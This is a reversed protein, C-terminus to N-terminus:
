IKKFQCINAGELHIGIQRCIPIGIKMMYKGVISGKLKRDTMISSMELIWPKALIHVFSSFVSSKKMLKVIYQAWSQYGLLAYYDHRKIDLGFTNDLYYLEHSLRNQNYLETCILCDGGEADAAEGAEIAQIADNVTNYEQAFATTTRSEPHSEDFQAAQENLGDMASRTGAIGGFGSITENIADVQAKGKASYSTTAVGFFTGKGKIGRDDVGNRKAGHEAQNQPSMSQVQSVTGMASVNGFADVHQGKANFGGMGKGGDGAGDKAYTGNKNMSFQSLGPNKGRGNVQGNPGYSFKDVSYDKSTIDVGFAAAQLGRAQYVSISRSPNKADYAVSINRGFPSAISHVSINGINFSGRMGNAAQHAAMSPQKSHNAFASHAAMALGVGPVAAGLLGKGITSLSPKSITGPATLGVAEYSASIKDADTSTTVNGLADVSDEALSGLTSPGEYEPSFSFSQDFGESSVSSMELSSPDPEGGIDPPQRRPKVVPAQVPTQRRTQGLDEPNAKRYGPPAGGQIQGGITTLYIVNGDDNIFPDIKYGGPLGAATGQFQLYQSQPTTGAITKGFSGPSPGGFVDERKTGAPAIIAGAPLQDQTFSQGTTSVGPPAFYSYYGGGVDMYYGQQYQALLPDPAVQPIALAPPAPVPQTSVPRIPQVAPPQPLPTTPIPQQQPTQPLGTTALGGIQFEQDENEMDPLPTEDPITQEDPNGVLGMGQMQNMGQKAKQLSGVYFDLGHYRVAYDPIVFEGPSIAATQDDRVGEATAGLPIENGSVPDVENPDAMFGALEADDNFEETNAM